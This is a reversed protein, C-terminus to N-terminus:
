QYPDWFMSQLGSWRYVSMTSVLHCGLSRFSCLDCRMKVDSHYYGIFRERVKGMTKNIGPHGATPSNHLQHLVIARFAKPLVIQLTIVQQIRGCGIFFKKQVCLSDWQAWYTKIIEGFPAVTEWPPRVNSKERWRLIQQVNKDQEQAKKLEQTSWRGSFNSGADVQVAYCSHLGAEEKQDLRDCHQQCM